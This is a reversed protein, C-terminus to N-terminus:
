GQSSFDHLCPVALNALLVDGDPHPPKKYPSRCDEHRATVAPLSVQERQNADLMSRDFVGYAPVVLKLTAGTSDEIPSYVQPQLTHVQV